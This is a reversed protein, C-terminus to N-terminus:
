RGMPIGLTAYLKATYARQQEKSLKLFSGDAVMKNYADMNFSEPNGKPAEHSAAASMTGFAAPIMSKIRKAEEESGFVVNTEEDYKIANVEALKLLGELTQPEKAGMKELEKKIAALKKNTIQQNKFEMKETELAQKEKLTLEYMTKYDEKEKLQQTKIAQLEAELAKTKEAYNKKETLLKDFTERPVVKEVEVEPKNEPTPTQETM